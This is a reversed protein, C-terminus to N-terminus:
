TSAGASCAPCECPDERGVYADWEPPRPVLFAYRIEGLLGARSPHPDWAVKGYRAVVVHRPAGGPTGSRETTGTLFHWGPDRIALVDLLTSPFNDVYALRHHKKLYVQLLNGYFPPQRRGEGDLHDCISQDPLTVPDVDLLCAVATQWCNGQLGFTTQTFERM